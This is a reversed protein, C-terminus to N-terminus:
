GAAPAAVAQAVGVQVVVVQGAVAQANPPQEIVLEQALLGISMSALLFLPKACRGIARFISLVKTRLSNNFSPTVM